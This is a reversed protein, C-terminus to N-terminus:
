LTLPGDYAPTANNWAEAFLGTSVIADTAGTPVGGVWNAPNNWDDHTGNPGDATATMIVAAQLTVALMSLVVTVTLVLNRITNM